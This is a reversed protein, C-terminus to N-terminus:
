DSTLLASNADNPSKKHFPPLILLFVAAAVVTLGALIATISDRHRRRTTTTQNTPQSAALPDTTTIATRQAETLAPTTEQALADTLEGVTERIEDVATRTKPCRDIQQAFELREADNLEGLVFATLRPDNPDFTKDSM